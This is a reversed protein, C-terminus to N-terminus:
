LDPIECNVPSLLIRNDGRLIARGFPYRSLVAGLLDCCKRETLSKDVPGPLLRQERVNSEM